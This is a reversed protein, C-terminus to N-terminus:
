PRVMRWWEFAHASMPMPMPMSWCTSVVAGPRRRSSSRGPVDIVDGDVPRDGLGDAAPLAVAAAGKVAALAAGSAGNEDFGAANM